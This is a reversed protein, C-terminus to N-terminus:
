KIARGDVMWRGQERSLIASGRKSEQYYGVVKGERYYGVVKSKPTYGVVESEPYYGESLGM